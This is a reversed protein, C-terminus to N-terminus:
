SAQLVGRDAATQELDRIRKGIELSSQQIAQLLDPQPGIVEQLHTTDLRFRDFHHPHTMHVEGRGFGEIIWLAVQGVPVALGSGVNFIGPPRAAVIQALVRGFHEVPIFDRPTFASFNFVLPENALLKTIALGFFTHRGPEFGFVNGPRLITCREGLVRQVRKETAICNRGYVDEALLPASEPAPFPMNTGYVKRSSMMIFHAGTLAVKCAVQMCFDDEESCASRFYSPEYAMNVVCSYRRFPVSAVEHHSVADLELTSGAQELFSKAIFSSKGVLLVRGM